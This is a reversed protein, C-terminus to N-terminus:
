VEALWQAPLEVGTPYKLKRMTRMVVGNGCVAYRKDNAEVVMGLTWSGGSLTTLFDDSWFLRGKQYENNPCKIVKVRTYRGFRVPKPKFVPIAIGRNLKKRRKWHCESCRKYYYWGGGTQRKRSFTVENETKGCSICIKM